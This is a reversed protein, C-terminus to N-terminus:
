INLDPYCFTYLFSIFHFHFYLFKRLFCSFLLQPPFVNILMQIAFISLRAFLNMLLEVESSCLVTKGSTSASIMVNPLINVCIHSGKSLHIFPYRTPLRAGHTAVGQQISYAYLGPTIHLTVLYCQALLLRVFPLKVKSLYSLYFLYFM